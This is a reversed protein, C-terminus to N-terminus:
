TDTAACLDVKGRVRWPSSLPIVDEDSIEALLRRVVSRSLSVSSDCILWDYGTFCFRALDISEWCVRVEPMAWRGSLGHQM